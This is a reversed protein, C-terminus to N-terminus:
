GTTVYPGIISRTREAGASLEPHISALTPDALATRVLRVRGVSADYWTPEVVPPAARFRGDAGRTLEITAVVGDYTAPRKWGQNAILNGVSLLAYEDGFHEIPQLVHPGHGVVLDLDPSALLREALARQDAAGTTDYENGWHLSAIVIEAGAARARAADALIRDADIVNAMWPEAPPTANFGWTYSLHAVGIGGVDVLPVAAAEDVTRATGSHGVGAADLAGLTAVIGATGQDNVHNSAISCRDWGTAAIGDAIEAPIAFAPYGSLARGPPAVPVELHCIALDAAAIAPAVDAFLAGFDYPLGREAGFRAAFEVISPHPLLEGTVAITLSSPAPAPAAAASEQATEPASEAIGDPQRADIAVVLVAGFALAVLLRRLEFTVRDM